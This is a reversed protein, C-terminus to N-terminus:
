LDWRRRQTQARRDTEEREGWGRTSSPREWGTTYLRPDQARGPPSDAGKVIHRVPTRARFWGSRGSISRSSLGPLISLLRSSITQHKHLKYQTHIGRHKVKHTHEDRQKKLTMILDKDAKQLEQEESQLAHVTRLEQILEQYNEKGKFMQVVCASTFLSSILVQFVHLCKQAHLCTWVEHQISRGRLLKQLHIVALEM